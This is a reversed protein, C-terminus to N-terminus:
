AEFWGRAHPLSDLHAPPLDPAAWRVANAIVRQVAPHRYVPYEQDGPSFYFVRGRGRRYAAGSRFVEGGSFSSIFVLEDPTPIDFPEGYMEQGDIVIPDPVGRAIPHAPAVTWVLEREADNRWRLSCTTGMLRLFPKSYHASHLPVFGMGAHVRSVVAEAVADDVDPHGEHGWWLLVDTAALEAPALTERHDALTAIRIDPDLDGLHARLGDAIAAHMGDPYLRAATQGARQEHLNENYITIRV